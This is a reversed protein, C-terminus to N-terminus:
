TSIQTSRVFVVFWKHAMEVGQLSAAQTTLLPHSLHTPIMASSPETALKDFSKKGKPAKEVRSVHKASSRRRSKEWVISGWLSNRLPSVSCFAEYFAVSDDYRLKYKKPIEWKRYVEGPFGKRSKFKKPDTEESFDDFLKFNSEGKLRLYVAIEECKKFDFDDKMKKDIKSETSKPMMIIEDDDIGTRASDDVIVTRDKSNTNGSPDVASLTM